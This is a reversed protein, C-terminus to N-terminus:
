ATVQEPDDPVYEDDHIEPTRRFVDPTSPDAFPHDFIEVAEAGDLASWRNIQEGDATVAEVVFETTGARLWMTVRGGHGLIPRENVELFGM